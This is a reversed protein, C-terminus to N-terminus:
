LRRSASYRASATIVAVAVPDIHQHRLLDPERDGVMVPARAGAVEVARRLMDAKTEVRFNGAYYKRSISAAVRAAELAVRGDAYSSVQHGQKELAYQLTELIDPDDDVVLIRAM